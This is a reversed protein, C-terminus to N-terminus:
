NVTDNTGPIDETDLIYDEEVFVMAAGSANDNATPAALEELMLSMFNFNDGSWIVVEELATALAEQQAQMKQEEAMTRVALFILCLFLLGTIISLILLWSRLNHNVEELTMKESQDQHLSDNELM